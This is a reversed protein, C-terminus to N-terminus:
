YGLSFVLSSSVCCPVVYRRERKGSELFMKDALELLEREQCAKGFGHGFTNLISRSIMETGTGFKLWLALGFSNVRFSIYM